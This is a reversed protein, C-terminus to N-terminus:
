FEYMVFICPISISKSSNSTTPMVWLSMGLIFAANITLFSYSVLKTLAMAKEGSPVLIKDPLLSEVACSQFMAVPLDSCNKLPCVAEMEETTKEGSPMLIKVPLSSLVALSQSM